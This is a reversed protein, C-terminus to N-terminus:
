FDYFNSSVNLSKTAASMNESTIEEVEKAPFECNNREGERKNSKARFVHTSCKPRFPSLSLPRQLCFSRIWSDVFGARASLQDGNEVTPKNEM